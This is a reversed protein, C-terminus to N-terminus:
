TARGFPEDVLSSLLTMSRLTLTGGQPPTKTIGSPPCIESTFVHGISLKRVIKTHRLLVVGVIQEADKLMLRTM